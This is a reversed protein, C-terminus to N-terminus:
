RVLMIKKLKKYDRIIITNNIHSIVNISQTTQKNHIDNFTFQTLNIIKTIKFMHPSQTLHNLLNVTSFQQTVGYVLQLKTLLM